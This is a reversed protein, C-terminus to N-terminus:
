NLTRSISPPKQERPVCNMSCGQFSKKGNRLRLLRHSTLPSRNMQDQSRPTSRSTANMRADANKAVGGSRANFHQRERQADNIDGEKNRLRRESEEIEKRKKDIQETLAPINTDDLRKKIEEIRASIENIADTTNDLCPKSRPLNLRVM